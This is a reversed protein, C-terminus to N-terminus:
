GREVRRYLRAPKGVTGQQVGGTLALMPRMTRRFTDRKAIVPGIAEHLRQLELMTFEDGLLGVPDPRERYQTQLRAIALALITDHDYALHAVDSVPVIDVDAGVGDAGVGDAGVGDAGVGDAGVGDAGVGDSGIGDSGIGDLADAPVTALHAVSLVWGRDDRDLADFVHLQEPVVGRLGAKDALSRRVAEALTEHEHLFTGPLRNLIGSKVLVVCLVGARVTLVATDVAISPHPYDALTKGHSDVYVSM